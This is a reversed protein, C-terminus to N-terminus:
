FVVVRYGGSVPQYYATGCQRYVVNGRRVTTCGAPLTTIVAGPPAPVVQYVVDGGQYVRSYYVGGDYWYTTGSVVMTTAAAPPRSLMTGVAIGAAVGGAVAAATRWGEHDEYRDAVIVGSRGAAVVGEEGAVVTGRRNAVVTREETSAVVGGRRGVAGYGEDGVVATGRRNSVVTREEGRVVTRGRRIQGDISSTQAAVLALTVLAAWLRSSRTM